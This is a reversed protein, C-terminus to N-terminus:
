PKPEEQFAELTDRLIDMRCFVMGSAQAYEINAIGNLYGRYGAILARLEDWSLKTQRWLDLNAVVGTQECHLVHDLERLRDETILEM